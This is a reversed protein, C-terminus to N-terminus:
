EFYNVNELLPRRPSASTVADVDDEPYGVLLIIQAKFNDPISLSAKRNDNVDQVGGYYMRAGLGLSHAALFINQAALACDFATDFRTDTRGSIIIVVAGENYHRPSIQRALENNKIVTFHWPQANAASPAKQGSQLIAELVNDSVPSAKYRTNSYARMIEEILDSSVALAVPEYNGPPPGPPMPPQEARPVSNEPSSNSSRECAVFGVIVSFSLLLALIQKKM